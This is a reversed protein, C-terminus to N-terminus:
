SGGKRLTRWRKLGKPWEGGSFGAPARTKLAGAEPHLMNKQQQHMIKSLAYYQSAPMNPTQLSAGGASSGIGVITDITAHPNVISFCTRAKSTSAAKLHENLVPKSLNHKNSKNNYSMACSTPISTQVNTSVNVGNQGMGIPTTPKVKNERKRPGSLGKGKTMTVKQYSRSEVVDEVNATMNKSTDIVKDNNKNNTVQETFTAM